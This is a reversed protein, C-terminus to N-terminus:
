DENVIVIPFMIIILTKRFTTDEFLQNEKLRKSVIEVSVLFLMQTHLALPTHFEGSYWVETDVGM